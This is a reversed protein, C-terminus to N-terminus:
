VGVSYLKISIYNTNELCPIIISSVEIKKAILNISYIGGSIKKLDNGSKDTMEILWSSAAKELFSKSFYDRTKKELETFLDKDEEQYYLSILEAINETKPNDTKQKLFDVLLYNSDIIEKIDQTNDVLLITRKANLGMFIFLVIVIIIAWAILQLFDEMVAKKNKKM